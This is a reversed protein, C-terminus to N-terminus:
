AKDGPPQRGGAQDEDGRRFVERTGPVGFVRRQLQAVM